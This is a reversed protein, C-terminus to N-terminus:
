EREIIAVAPKKNWKEGRSIHRRKRKSAMKRTKAEENAM